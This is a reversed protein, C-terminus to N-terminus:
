EVGQRERLAGLHLGLCFDAYGVAGMDGRLLRDRLCMAKVFAEVEKRKVSCKVVVLEESCHSLELSEYKITELGADKFLAQSLRTGDTYLRDVYLYRVRRPVFPPAVPRMPTLRQFGHVVNVPGDFNERISKSM